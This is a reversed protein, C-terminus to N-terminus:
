ESEDDQEHKFPLVYGLKQCHLTIAMGEDTLTNQNGIGLNPDPPALEGLEEFLIQVMKTAIGARRYDINIEWSTIKAPLTTSFDDERLDTTYVGGIMKGNHYATVDGNGQRLEIQRGQKDPFKLM